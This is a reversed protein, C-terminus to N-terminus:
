KWSERPSRVPTALCHVKLLSQQCSLALHVHTHAQNTDLCVGAAHMSDFPACANTDRAVLGHPVLFALAEVIALIMEDTNNSNVRADAFALHAETTIVPGFMVDISGHLSRAIVSWLALTEGDAPRSFGMLTSPGDRFTM